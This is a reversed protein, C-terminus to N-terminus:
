SLLGENKAFKLMNKSPDIGIKIKLLSAFRGSGVGVELGPGEPIAKRLAKLESLYIVKHKEFWDDYKKWNRDFIEDSKIVNEFNGM